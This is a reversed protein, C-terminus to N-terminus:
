RFILNSLFFTMPFSYVLDSLKTAHLPRPTGELSEDDGLQLVRDLYSWVEDRSLEEPSAHNPDTLDSYEWM